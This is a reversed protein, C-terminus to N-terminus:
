GHRAPCPRLRRAHHERQRPWGVRARGQRARWCGFQCYLLHPPCRTAPHPPPWTDQYPAGLRRLLLRPLLPHGLEDTFVYGSDQWAEGASEREFRQREGHRRLIRVLNADIDITRAGADTKPTSQVAQGGNMLVRTTAFRLSGEKLDVHEWRRGAVEGRRLGRGLPLACAAYLRDDKTGALFARAEDATWVKMARSQSRPRKVGVLPDRGLLGNEIAWKTAAKLFGTRMHLSRASLQREASLRDHWDTIMKPTLSAVKVAGLYPIVWGEVAGQHQALTTPRVRQRQGPLWHDRLLQAV